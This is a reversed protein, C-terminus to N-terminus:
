GSRGCGQDSHIPYMPSVAEASLVINGEADRQWDQAEVLPEPESGISAAVSSQAPIAPQTIAPQTIALTTGSGFDTLPTTENRIVAAPSPAIGGRGTVVFASQGQSDALCRQAIPPTDNLDTPLELLGDTPDIDAIDRTITGSAGGAQSSADIDNTGNGPIAPREVLNFINQATININGGDGEFANAIIDSDEGPVAIIFANPALIAIDGGDGGTQATGATTSLQSNRRLLLFDAIQVTINGGDGSSSESVITSEDLQVSAATIDISSAAQNGESSASITAGDSIQLQDTKVSLVEGAPGLGSTETFLGSPQDSTSTGELQVRDTAEIILRGGSGPGRSGASVQGGDSVSLTATQIRLEEGADGADLTQTLLGSAQNENLSTGSVQVLETAEVTLIGGDGAGFTQTSVSGGEQILLQRTQIQLDGSNGTSFTNAQAAINSRVEEGDNFLGSGVVQITETAQISLDGANGETSTSASINGGGEVQLQRTDIFINGGDGTANEDTSARVRSARIGDSSIGSVVMADSVTLMLDGADGAGFTGSAIRAGEQITLERATITVDGGDGTADPNVQAAISSSTAGDASQGIIQVSETANITLNGADGMGFTSASIQAGGRVELSGTTITVNGAHGTAEQFTRTQISTFRDTLAIADAVEIIIDGGQGSVLTAAAIAARDELNLDSSQIRITGGIESGETSALLTSGRLTIEDNAILTIDGVRGTSSSSVIGRLEVAINPLSVDSVIDTRADLIVSGADGSFLFDDTFINNFQITGGALSLNPEYQNTLLVFGNPADVAVDGVIIDASSPATANVPPPVFSFNEDFFIELPFQDGVTGLPTGIADPLMGARIDLTPQRSGDITVSTGDALDVNALEPTNIPNISDGVADAGTIIIMSIEVSGGALVHLSSGQYGLFSVDGQSRIIPDQLSVLHGLAGDLQEVRFDGGNWYHADGIVPQASRLIIDGGAWFGSQPHHLAFIDIGQNGQLLLQNGAVAILPTDVADQIRLTDQAQLMLDTGAGITGQLNLRDATLTLDQGAFLRGQNVITTGPQLTGSQIGPTISLTLLPPGAPNTASFTFDDGLQLEDATSAFFSSRIDLEANPGFVIGHPNLFFLNAPGEVGLTGLIYSANAGTVRSLITEIGTPNAFYVQGGEAVNFESFSHFLSSDRLAGGTIRDDSTLQSSEPGLTNDPIIQAQVPSAMLDEGILNLLTLTGVLLAKPCWLQWKSVM